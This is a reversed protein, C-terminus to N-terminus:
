RIEIAAGLQYGSSRLSRLASGPCGAQGLKGRLRTIRVALNAKSSEGVELGMSEILQWHELRQGPAFALSTLLTVEVPNLPVVGQPGSLLQAQPDLTLAVEHSNQAQLTDGRIQRALARVASLLEAEAVPKPLYLDAGTDYGKVRDILSTRTTMMIIRLGPQVRKLRQAMQLGDEGPLNLDLLMLEFPELHKAEVLEEASALGLVVHGQDRLVEVLSERLDDNDEVICIKLHLEV